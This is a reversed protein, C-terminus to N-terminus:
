VPPASNEVRLLLSNRDIALYNTEWKGEREQHVLYRDTVTYPSVSGGQWVPSSICEIRKGEISLDSMRM